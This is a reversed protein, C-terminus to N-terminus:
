DGCVGVDKVHMSKRPGKANVNWLPLALYTLLCPGPQCAWLRCTPLPDSATPFGLRRIREHTIIIVLLRCLTMTTMYRGKKNVTRRTSARKHGM